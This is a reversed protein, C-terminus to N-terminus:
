TNCPRVLRYPWHSHGYWMLGAQEPETNRHCHTGYENVAMKISNEASVRLITDISLVSLFMLCHLCYNYQCICKVRWKACQRLYPRVCRVSQHELQAMSNDVCDQWATLDNKQASSPQPLEYRSCLLLM